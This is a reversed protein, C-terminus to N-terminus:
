LDGVLEGTVLFTPNIKLDKLSHMAATRLRRTYRRMGVHNDTVLLALIPCVILKKLSFLHLM